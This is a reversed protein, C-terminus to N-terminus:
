VDKGVSRGIKPGISANLPGVLLWDRRYLLMKLNMANEPNHIHCAFSMKLIMANEPNHSLCLIM